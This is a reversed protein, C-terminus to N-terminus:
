LPSISVCKGADCQKKGFAIMVKLMIYYSFYCWSAMVVPPDVGARTGVGRGLAGAVAPTLESVTTIDPALVLPTVIGLDLDPSTM